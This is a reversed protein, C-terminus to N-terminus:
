AQGHSPLILWPRCSSILFTISCCSKESTPQRPNKLRLPYGASCADSAAVPHQNPVEASPGAAIFRAQMRKLVVTTSSKLEVHQAGPPPLHWAFVRSPRGPQFLSKSSCTRTTCGSRSRRALAGEFRVLCDRSGLKGVERRCLVRREAGGSGKREEM